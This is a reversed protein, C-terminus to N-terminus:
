PSSEAARDSASGTAVEFSPDSLDSVRRPLDLYARGAGSAMFFAACSRQEAFSAHSRFFTHGGRRVRWRLLGLNSLRGVVCSLERFTVNRALYSGLVPRATRFSVYEDDAMALTLDEVNRLEIM